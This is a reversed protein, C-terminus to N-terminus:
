LPVGVFSRVLPCVCCHVCALLCVYKPLMQYLLSDTRKKEEVLEATRQQVLEELNTAYKELLGVMNDM